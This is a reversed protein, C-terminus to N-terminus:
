AAGLRQFLADKIAREVEIGLACHGELIVQCRRLAGPDMSGDDTGMRYSLEHLANSERLAELIRVLLEIDPTM